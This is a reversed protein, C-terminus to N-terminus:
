KRSYYNRVFKRFAPDRKLDVVGQKHKKLRENLVEQAKNITDQKGKGYAFYAVIFGKIYKDLELKEAIMILTEIIKEM